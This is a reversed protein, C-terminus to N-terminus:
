AVHPLPNIQLQEVLQEFPIGKLRSLKVLSETREAQHLEMFNTLELLEQYADDELSGALMQKRLQNYRIQIVGAVPRNIQRILESESESLVSPVKRKRVELMWELLHDLEALSMQSLHQEFGPIHDVGSM